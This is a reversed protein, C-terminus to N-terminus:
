NGHVLISEMEEFSTTIETANVFINCDSALTNGLKNAVVKAGSFGARYLLLYFGAGKGYAVVDNGRLIGKIKKSITKMDLRKRNISVPKVYMLITNEVNEEINKSIFHRFVLQAYEKNFVGTQYDLINASTLIQQNMDIQKYLVSKQLTLFIRMLVLSDSDSMFFFDDIGIDFAYFLIDEVFTDMVFIIPVKDLASISRIEKILTVSDTSGAYVLILAPQTSNLVSISEIYSVTKITDYERLLKIKDSIKNGVEINNSIILISNNRLHGM